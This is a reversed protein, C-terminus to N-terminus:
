AIVLEDIMLNTEAGELSMDAALQEWREHIEDANRILKSYESHRNIVGNVVPIAYKIVSMIETINIEWPSKKIVVKGINIATVISHAMLLMEHLKEKSTPKIFKKIAKFNSYDETLEFEEKYKQVSKIGFYIRIIVEVVITSLSQIMINKLNFGNQYMTAALKRLPQM